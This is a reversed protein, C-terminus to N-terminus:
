NPRHRVDIGTTLRGSGTSFNVPAFRTCSYCSLALPVGRWPPALCSEECDGKRILQGHLGDHPRQQPQPQATEVLLQRKEGPSMKAM